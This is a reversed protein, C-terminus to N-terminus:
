CKLIQLIQFFQFLPRGAHIHLYGMIFVLAGSPALLERTLDKSSPSSPSSCLGINHPPPHSEGCSGVTHYLLPLATNNRYYHLPMAPVIPVNTYNTHNAKYYLPTTQISLIALVYMYINTQQGPSVTPQRSVKAFPCHVDSVLCIDSGLCQCGCFVVNQLARTNQSQDKGHLKKRKLNRWQFTPHRNYVSYM